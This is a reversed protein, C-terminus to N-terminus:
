ARRAKWQEIARVEDRRREIEGGVDARLRLFAAEGPHRELAEALDALESGRYSAFVEAVPPAHERLFRRLWARIM